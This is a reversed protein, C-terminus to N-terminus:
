TVPVVLGKHGFNSGATHIGLIKSLFSGGNGILPRGCDGGVTSM